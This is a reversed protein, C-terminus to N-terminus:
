IFYVMGVELTSAHPVTVAYRPGRSNRRLFDYCFNIVLRRLFGSGSKAKVHSRGLIFAMGAERADSLEQLEEQAGADPKPSAAPLVFRVRKKNKPGVGTAPAPSPSQIERSARSSPGVGVTNQVTAEEELMRVSNSRVVAMRQEEEEDVEEATGNLKSSGSRIFEAVSCVLEKEFEVDDKHFDQYGYRVICRYIRYQKPGIRGVLFREEPRVHPIPVNKICM